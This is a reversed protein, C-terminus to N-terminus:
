EFSVPFRKTGAISPLFSLVTAVTPSLSLSLSWAIFFPPPPSVCLSLLAIRRLVSPWVACLSSCFSSSRSRKSHRKKAARSRKDGNQTTRKGQQTQKHAAAQTRAAHPTPAPAAAPRPAATTPRHVSLSACALVQSFTHPPFFPSRITPCHFTLRITKERAGGQVRSRLISDRRDERCSL